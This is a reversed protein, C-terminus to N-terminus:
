GGDEKGFTKHREPSIVSCAVKRQSSLISSSCWRDGALVLDMQAAYPDVAYQGSRMNCTRHRGVIRQPRPPGVAASLCVRHCAQAALRVLSAHFAELSKRMKQATQIIAVADATEIRLSFHLYACASDFVRQWQPRLVMYLHDQYIAQADQM